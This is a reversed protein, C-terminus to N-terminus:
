NYISAAGWQNMQALWPYLLVTLTILTIRKLTWILSLLILCIVIGIDSNMFYDFYKTHTEGSSLEPLLLSGICDSLSFLPWISIKYGIWFSSWRIKEQFCFSDSFHIKKKKKIQNNPFHKTTFGLLPNWFPIYTTKFVLILARKIGNNHSTKAKLYWHTETSQNPSDSHKPTIRNGDLCIVNAAVRKSTDFASQLWNNHTQNQKSM